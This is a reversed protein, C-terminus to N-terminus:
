RIGPSTGQPARDVDFDWGDPASLGRAAVLPRLAASGEPSLADGIVRSRDIVQPMREARGRELDAIVRAAHEAADPQELAAALAAKLQWAAGEAPDRDIARDVFESAGDAEGLHAAVLALNFLSEYTEGYTALSRLLWRQAEEFRELRAGALGITNWLDGSAPRERLGVQATALAEALRGEGVQAEAALAVPDRLWEPATRRTPKVM